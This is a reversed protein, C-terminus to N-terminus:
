VEDYLSFFREEDMSDIINSDSRYFLWQDHIVVDNYATGDKSFNTFSVYNFIRPNGQLDITEKTIQNIFRYGLFTKLESLGSPSKLDVKIASVYHTKLKYHGIM